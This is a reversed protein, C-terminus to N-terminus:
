FLTGVGACLSHMVKCMMNSLFSIHLTICELHENIDDRDKKRKEFRPFGIEFIESAEYHDNM